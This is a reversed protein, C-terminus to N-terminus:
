AGRQEEKLLNEIVPIVNDYYRFTQVQKNSHKSKDWVLEGYEETKLNHKNALLGVKNSTIGLKEGIETASYTKREVKPLPILATGDLVETAKSYCIQQYTPINVKDAIKLYVIAQRVKANILRAETDKFKTDVKPKTQQEKLAQECKIFYNRYQHSLETRAMMAIHKAFDLSIGFDKTENGNVVMTFGVWDVNEKFYENNEINSEYWRKWHASKLGLGIYLERASVVKRGERETIKILEVEEKKCLANKPM